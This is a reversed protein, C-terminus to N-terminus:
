IVLKVATLDLASPVSLAFEEQLNVAIMQHLEQSNRSEDSAFVKARFACYQALWNLIEENLDTAKLTQAGPQALLWPYRVYGREVADFGPSFGAAALADARLRAQEGWRGLGEFKWLRTGDASLFKSREMTTG